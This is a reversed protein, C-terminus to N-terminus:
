PVPPGSAPGHRRTAGVARLRILALRRRPRSSEVARVLGATAGLTVSGALVLAGLGAVWAM